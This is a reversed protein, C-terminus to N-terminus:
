FPALYLFARCNVTFSPITVVGGTPNVTVVLVNVNSADFYTMVQVQYGGPGNVIVVGNVVRTLSDYGVIAVQVQTITAARTLPTTATASLFANSAYPGGITTVSFSAQAYNKLGDM